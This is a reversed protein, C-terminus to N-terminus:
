FAKVFGVSINENIPDPNVILMPKDLSVSTIGQYSVYLIAGVIGIGAGIPINLIHEEPHAYFSLTSLGLVGGILGSVLITQTPSSNNSTTSSANTQAQALSMGLVLLPAMIIRLIFTKM